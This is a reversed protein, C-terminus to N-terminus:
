ASRWEPDLREQRVLDEYLERETVVAYRDGDVMVEAVRPRSNYNSSMVFGYAGASHVALLDGPQADDVERDLAFFDGSECVPGVVSVVSHRGNPSASEIRHYANYHSPRLLETMGADTIVYDKGGSRKRYLVRTLLVGANGVLFRGPEILLELGTPAVLPAILSAFGALDPETENEYTVALGGGIDLYRLEDAGATRLVGLLELLRVLGLEYPELQTVQSGVHMDLGVLRVNPLSQALRATDLAEDYPIGFKNGREGTRTYPHPTEVSVEPNVRLAVPAPRGLGGAVRDLLRLEGESEVNVLLVDAEVAEALERETKGVGSFVVDAGTFGAMRARYLEGGSVIDVGAGLERLLRLVALNSNAKVSYHVRHRVGGLARALRSFQERIAAASYVYAPTGVAEALRAADVGDCRLRGGERSWGAGGAQGAAAQGAAPGAGSAGPEPTPTPTSPSLVGEGM